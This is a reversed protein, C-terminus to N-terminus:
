HAVPVGFVAPNEIPQRSSFGGETPHFHTIRDEGERWCLLVTRGDLLAPFDVLFPDLGKVQGGLEHVRNIEEGMQESLQELLERDQETGSSVLGSSTRTRSSRGLRERVTDAQAVLARIRACAERALPILANAEELTYHRIFM